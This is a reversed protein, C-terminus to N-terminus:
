LRHYPPVAPLRVSGHPSIEQVQLGRRMFISPSNLLTGKVVVMQGLLPALKDPQLGLLVYGDVQYHAPGAVADYRLIGTIAMPKGPSVPLTPAFPARPVFPTTLTAGRAGPAGVLLAGVLLGIIAIRSM